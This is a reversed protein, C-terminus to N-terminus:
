EHTVNKILEALQPRLLKAMAEAIAEETFDYEVKGNALLIKFGKGIVENGTINFQAKTKEAFKSCIMEFIQKEYEKSILIDIKQNSDSKLLDDIVTSITKKLFEPDSMAKASEELIIKKLVNDLMVGVWRIIDRGAQKINNQARAFFLESDQKARARINEAEKTASQIIDDAKNRAEEIIKQSEKKAKEIGENQIRELLAQIEVTM